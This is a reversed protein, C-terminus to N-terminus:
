LSRAIAKSDLVSDIQLARRRHTTAATADDWRVRVYDDADGIEGVILGCAQVGPERFRVRDGVQPQQADDQM